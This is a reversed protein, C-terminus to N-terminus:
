SGFYRESPVTRIRMAARFRCEHGVDCRPLQPRASFNDLGRGLGPERLLPIAANLYHWLENLAVGQLCGAYEAPVNPM